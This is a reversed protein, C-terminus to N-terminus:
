RITPERFDVITDRLREKPAEDTIHLIDIMSDLSGKDSRKLAKIGSSTDDQDTLFCILRYCLLTTLM